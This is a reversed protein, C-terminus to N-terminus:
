TVGDGKTSENSQKAKAQSEKTQRVSKSRRPSCLRVVNSLGKWHM